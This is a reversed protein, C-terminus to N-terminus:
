DQAAHCHATDLRNHGAHIPAFACPGPEGFTDILLTKSVDEGRFRQLAHESDPRFNQFASNATSHYDIHIALGCHYLTRASLVAVPM